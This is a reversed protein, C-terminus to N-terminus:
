CKYYRLTDFEIQNRVNDTVIKNIRQVVYNMNIIKSTSILIKDTNGQFICNRQTLIYLQETHDSNEETVTLENVHICSRLINVIESWLLISQLKLVSM